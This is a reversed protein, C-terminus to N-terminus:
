RVNRVLEECRRRQECDASRCGCVINHLVFPEKRIAEALRAGSERDLAEERQDREIAQACLGAIQAGNQHREPCDELEGKIIAALQERLTSM